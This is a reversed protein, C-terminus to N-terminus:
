YRQGWGQGQDPPMAPPQGPQQYGPPPPSWGVNSMPRQMHPFAGAANTPDFGSAVAAGSQAVEYNAQTAGCNLCIRSDLKVRGGCQWCLGRQVNNPLVEFAAVKGEGTAKASARGLFFDFLTGDPGFLSYLLTSLPSLLFIGIFWGWRRRLVTMVLGIIWALVTALASGIILLFGPAGTKALTQSAQEICAQYQTQNSLYQACQAGASGAAGFVQTYGLYGLVIAGLSLIFIVLKMTHATAVRWRQTGRFRAADGKQVWAVARGGAPKWIRFPAPALM